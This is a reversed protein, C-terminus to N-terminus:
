ALKDTTKIIQCISYISVV